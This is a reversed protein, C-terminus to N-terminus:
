SKVFELLEGDFAEEFGGILGHPAEPIAKLTGQPLLGVTKLASVAIPM